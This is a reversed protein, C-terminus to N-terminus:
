LVRKNSNYSNCISVAWTCYFAANIPSMTNRYEQRGRQQDEGKQGEAAAKTTRKFVRMATVMDSYWCVVCLLTHTCPVAAYVCVCVCVCYLVICHQPRACPVPRVNLTQAHWHRGSRVSCDM